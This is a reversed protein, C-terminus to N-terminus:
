RVQAWMSIQNHNICYNSTLFLQFATEVRLEDCFQLNIPSPAFINKQSSQQSFHYSRMQLYQRSKTLLDTVRNQPICNNVYVRNM